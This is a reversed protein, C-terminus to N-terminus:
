DTIHEKKVHEFESQAKDYLAALKAQSYGYILRVRKQEKMYEVFIYKVENRGDESIASIIFRTVVGDIMNCYENSYSRELKYNQARCVDSILSNWELSWRKLPLEDLIVVNQEHLMNNSYLSGSDVKYNFTERDFEARNVECRSIVPWLAFNINGLYESKYSIKRSDKIKLALLSRIEVENYRCKPGLTIVRLSRLLGSHYYDIRLGDSTQWTEVDGSFGSELNFLIRYEHEDSWTTSKRFLIDVDSDKARVDSYRVKRILLRNNLESMGNELIEYTEEDLKIVEFEFILCAGRSREAYLGWMKPSDWVSSLCIYGFNKIINTQYTEAQAVCETIDNTRWPCSLRLRQKDIIQMLAQEGVYLCLKLTKSPSNGDDDPFVYNLPRDNVDHGLYRHPNTIFQHTRSEKNM